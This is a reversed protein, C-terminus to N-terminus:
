RTAVLAIISCVLCIPIYVLIVIGIATPKRM